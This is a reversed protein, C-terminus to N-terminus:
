LGSYSRFLLALPHLVERGHLKFSLYMRCTPCQTVVTEAGSQLIDELRPSRIKEATERHQMFFTGAAGCCREPNKLPAYELGEIQSFLSLPADKVGPTWASHCPVHYCYRTFVGKPASVMGLFHLYETAEWMKGAVLGIKEQIPDDAPFCKGAKEKFMMGCSTCDTVIADVDLGALIEINVRIAEQTGSLDGEALLPIGCCVQGEPIDLSIGNKRFVEVVAVGTDPFLFHTGCGVFYAVKARLVGHAEIRGSFYQDFTKESLRPMEKGGLGFKQAFSGLKGLIPPLGRKGLVKGMLKKRLGGKDAGMEQRAAILIDTVPVQSACSQTCQTCLLCHHLIEEARETLDMSKEFFIERILNLRNRALESELLTALFVPCTAQCFSCQSCKEIFDRYDELKYM